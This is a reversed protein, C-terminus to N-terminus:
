DETKRTKLVQKFNLATTDTVGKYYTDMCDPCIGHAMTGTAGADIFADLTIWRGNLNVKKCVACVQIVHPASSAAPVALKWTLLMVVAGIFAVMASEICADCWQIPSPPMGFFLNPIDLLEDGWLILLIMGFCVAECILLSKPPAGAKM